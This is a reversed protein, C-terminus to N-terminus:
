IIKVKEKKFSKLQNREIPTCILGLVSLSYPTIFGGRLKNSSLDLNPKQISRRKNIFYDDSFNDNLLSTLYKRSDEVPMKKNYHVIIHFSTKGTFRIEIKSFHNKSKLFDYVEKVSDKILELDVDWDIDIIGFNEREKMTSHISVLRGHIFREYNNKNLKIFKSDYKRKVIFQNIAVSIFFMVERHEVRKLLIPKIKTYYEYVHKEKLGSPYFENQVVITEPHHPFGEFALISM